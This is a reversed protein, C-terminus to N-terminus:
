RFRGLFALAKRSQSGTAIANGLSPRIYASSLATVVGGRSFRSGAARTKVAQAKASSGAALASTAASGIAQEPAGTEGHATGGRPRGPGSPVVRIARGSRAGDNRRGAPAIARWPDIPIAAASRIPLKRPSARAMWRSGVSM